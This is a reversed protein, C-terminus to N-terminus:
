SRCERKKQSKRGYEECKKWCEKGYVRLLDSKEVLNQGNKVLNNPVETMNKAEAAINKVEERANETEEGVNKAVTM